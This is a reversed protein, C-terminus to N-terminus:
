YRGITGLVADATGIWVEVGISAPGILNNYNTNEDVYSGNFYSFSSETQAGMPMVISNGM